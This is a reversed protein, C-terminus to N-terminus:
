SLFHLFSTNLYKLIIQSCWFAAPLNEMTMAITEKSNIQNCIYIYGKDRVAYVGMVHDKHKLNCLPLMVGSLKKIFDSSVDGVNEYNMKRQEDRSLLYGFSSRITETAAVTDTLEVCWGTNKPNVFKVDDTIIDSAGCGVLVPSEFAKLNNGMAIIRTENRFARGIGRDVTQYLRILCDYEYEKYEDRGLYKTKDPAVFEDYIIWWVDSYHGSKYKSEQSLPLAYGCLEEDRGSLTLYYAGRFYRVKEIPWGGDKLIAAADGFYERATAMLEIENRRCYIFKRKHKLYQHLIYIAWGTTKGISRSGISILLPKGTSALRLPSYFDGFIEELTKM